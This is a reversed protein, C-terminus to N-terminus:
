YLIGVVVGTIQSFRVKEPDPSPNNDGKTIFYIGQEDENIDIIRHIVMDKKSKYSVIDGIKLYAPKQPTLKIAHATIDLVPDMSNSDTFTSWSANPVVLIVANDTIKVNKEQIWDGPSRVENSEIPHNLYDTGENAIWGLLFLSVFAIILVPKSNQM